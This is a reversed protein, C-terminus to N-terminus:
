GLLPSRVQLSKWQIKKHRTDRKYVSNVASFMVSKGGIHSYGDTTDYTYEEDKLLMKLMSYTADDEDDKDDKHNNFVKMKGKSGGHGTQPKQAKFDKKCSKRANELANYFTRYAYMAFMPYKKCVQGATMNSDVNGNKILLKLLKGDKSTASWQIIEGKENTKKPKKTADM